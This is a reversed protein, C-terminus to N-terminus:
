MGYRETLELHPGHAGGEETARGEAAGDGERVGHSACSACAAITMAVVSLLLFCRPREANMTGVSASPKESPLFSSLSPMRAEDALHSGVVREGRAAEVREGFVVRCESGASSCREASAARKM